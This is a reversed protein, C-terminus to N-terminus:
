CQTGFHFLELTRGGVAWGFPSRLLVKWELLSALDHIFDEIVKIGALSGKEVNIKLGLMCQFVM